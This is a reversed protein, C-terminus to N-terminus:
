PVDEAARGLRERHEHVLREARDIDTLCQELRYPDGALRTAFYTMGASVRHASLGDAESRDLLWGGADAADDTGAALLTACRRVHDDAPEVTRADSSTARDDWVALDRLFSGARTRGVGRVGTLLDFVTSLDDRALLSSAFDTLCARYGTVDGVFRMEVLSPSPRVGLDDPDSAPYLPHGRPNTIERRSIAALLEWTREAAAGGGPFPGHERALSLAKAGAGADYASGPGRGLGYGYLFLGLSTWPDERHAEFREGWIPELELARYFPSLRAFFQLWDGTAPESPPTM